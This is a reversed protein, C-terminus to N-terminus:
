RVPKSSKKQPMEIPIKKQEPRPKVIFSKMDDCNNTAKCDSLAQASNDLCTTYYAVCAGNPCYKNRCDDERGMADNSCKMCEATQAYLDM